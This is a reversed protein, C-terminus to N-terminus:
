ARQRVSASPTMGFLKRYDSSFQSFNCLGWEGALEGIARGGALERRVGNLRVTRLYLIPSIGLVDEFCYQLTRRSVHVQQCLEPVTISETRHALIYDRAQAVVQRRRQLSAAM